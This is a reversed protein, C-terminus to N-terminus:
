KTINLHHLEINTNVMRLVAANGKFDSDSNHDEEESTFDLSTIKVSKSKKKKISRSVVPLIEDSLNEATDAGDGIEEAEVEGDKDGETKEAEKAGKDAFTTIDPKAIM